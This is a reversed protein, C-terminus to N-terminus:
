LLESVEMSLALVALLRLRREPQLRLLDEELQEQLPQSVLVVVLALLELEVQLLFLEATMLIQRLLLSKEVLLELEVQLLFQGEWV